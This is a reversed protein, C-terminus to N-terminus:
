SQLMQQFLTLNTHAQKILKGQENLDNYYDCVSPMARQSMVIANYSHTEGKLKLITRVEMYDTNDVAVFYV